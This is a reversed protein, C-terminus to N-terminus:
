KARVAGDCGTKSHCYGEWGKNPVSLVKVSQNSHCYCECGNNPESLVMKRQCYKGGGGVCVEMM